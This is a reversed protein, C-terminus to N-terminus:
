RSRNARTQDALATVMDALLKKTGEDTLNGEDDFRDHARFVVVEPKGLVKSHIWLFSQRLSLQARVSGFNTPAAGMIAVNKHLLCSTAAPRSAWDIANKLVGPVGYNYEPTAILVADADHIRARLQAVPKPV